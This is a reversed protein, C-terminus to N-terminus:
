RFMILGTAFSIIIMILKLLGRMETLLSVLADLRHEVGDTQEELTKM